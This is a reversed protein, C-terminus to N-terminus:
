HQSYAQKNREGFERNISQKGAMNCLATGRSIQISIGHIYVLKFNAGRDVVNRTGRM